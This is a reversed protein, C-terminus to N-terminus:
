KDVHHQFFSDLSMQKMNDNTLKTKKRKIKGKNEPQIVCNEKAKNEPSFNLITQKLTVPKAESQVLTSKFKKMDSRKKFQIKIAIQNSKLRNFGKKRFKKSETINFKVTAKIKRSKKKSKQRKKHIESDIKNSSYCLEKEERCNGLEKKIDEKVSAKINNNTNSINCFDIGNVKRSKKGLGKHKVKTKLEKKILSKEEKAVNVIKIKKVERDCDDLAKRKLIPKLSSHILHQTEQIPDNPDLFRVKKKEKFIETSPLEEKGVDTEIAKVSENENATSNDIAAAQTNKKIESNRDVESLYRNMFTEMDIKKHLPSFKITCASKIEAPQSETDKKSPTCEEHVQISSDTTQANPSKQLYNM